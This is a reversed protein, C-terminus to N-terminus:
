APTDVSRPDQAIQVTLPEPDHQTVVRAVRFCYGLVVAQGALRSRGYVDSVDELVLLVLAVPRGPRVADARRHTVLHDFEEDIRKGHVVDVAEVSIDIRKLDRIGCLVVHVLDTADRDAIESITLVPIRPRPRAASKPEIMPAQHRARELYPLATVDN